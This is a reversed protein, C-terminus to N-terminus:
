SVSIMVTAQELSVKRKEKWLAASVSKRGERESIRGGAGDGRAEEEQAECGEKKWSVRQAPLKSSARGSLCM